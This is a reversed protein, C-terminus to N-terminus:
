ARTRFCAISSTYVLKRHLPPRSKVIAEVRCNHGRSSRGNRLSGAPASEPGGPWIVLDVFAAALMKDM